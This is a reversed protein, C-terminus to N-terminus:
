CWYSHQSIQCLPGPTYIDIMLRRLDRLLVAFYQLLEFLQRFQPPLLCLLIFNSKIKITQFAELILNLHDLPLDLSIHFHLTIM